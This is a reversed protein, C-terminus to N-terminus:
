WKGELVNNYDELNKKNVYGSNGKSLNASKGFGIKVSAGPNQLVAYVNGTKADM